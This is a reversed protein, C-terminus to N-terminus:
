RLSILIEKAISKYKSNSEVLNELLTEGEKLENSNILFLAKKLILLDKQKKSINLNEVEKFYALIKQKNSELNKELITKISLIAYFSNKDTIIEEYIEKAKEKENLSLLIGANIYKESILENKKSKSIQFFFVVLILILSIFFSSLILAKSKKFIEFIKNKLEEKKEFNDSM